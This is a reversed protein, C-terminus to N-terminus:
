ADGDPRDPVGLDLRHAIAGHEDAQAVKIVTVNNSAV